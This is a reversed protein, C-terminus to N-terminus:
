NLSISFVAGKGKGDSRAVLDGNHHRVIKRSLYLGIGTSPEGATGVRGNKTFRDFLNEAVEPEFGMGGDKVDIFTKGEKQYVKFKVETGEYSFKIANSALNKLVQSFLEPHVEIEGDYDFEGKLSIGKQKAATEFSNLTEDIIAAPVIQRYGSNDFFLHDQRLIELINEVLKSQEDSSEEIMSAYEKVTESAEEALLLKSLTKINRIPIRLDHSLLSTMDKKEELLDNLETITFQINQMLKGAEDPFQTPLDPLTRNQRYALLSKGSKRLPDLLGNLIYLTIGTAALTLLLTIGIVSLKDLSDPKFLVFVILGILPIHIGLFAIFLFKFTYSKALLKISSLREYISKMRCLNPRCSYRVVVLKALIKVSFRKLGLFGLCSLSGRLVAESLWSNLVPTSVVM